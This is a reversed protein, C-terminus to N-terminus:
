FLRLRRYKIYWAFSTGWFWGLDDWILPIQREGISPACRHAWKQISGTEGARELDWYTFPKLITPALNRTALTIFFPSPQSLRRSNYLRWLHKCYRAIADPALISKLTRLAALVHMALCQGDNQIQRPVRPTGALSDKDSSIADFLRWAYCLNILVLMMYSPLSWSAASNPLMWSVNSLSSVLRRQASCLALELSSWSATLIKSGWSPAFQCFALFLFWLLGVFDSGKCGQMQILILLFFENRGGCVRTITQCCRPKAKQLTPQAVSECHVPWAAFRHERRIRSDHEWEWHGLRPLQQLIADPIWEPSRRLCSVSRGALALRPSLSAGSSAVGFTSPAKSPWHGLTMETISPAMWHQTFPQEGLM